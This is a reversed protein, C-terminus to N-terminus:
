FMMGQSGGHGQVTHGKALTIPIEYIIANRRYRLTVVAGASQKQVEDRLEIATFVYHDALALIVDGSRLGVQDAPGGTEVYVVKVGDHRIEPNGTTGAGISGYDGSLAPKGEMLEDLSSHM